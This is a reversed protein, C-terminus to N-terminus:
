ANVMAGRADLAKLKDRLWTAAKAADETALDSGDDPPPAGDVQTAPTAPPPPAPKSFPDDADRQALAELSFQQQQMMPSDGGEVPPLDLWRRRAENPAAVGSRVTESAASVRGATDMQLLDNRDFESGLRRGDILEPALGLGYDLVEEVNEIREQLCQSYYQLNIAESGGALNPPPGVNIKWPPVGFAQCVDEATWKLQDILQADVASLGINQYKLGSGLVAVKGANSGTFNNDWYEKARAATEVSIEGPASLVGGPNSGTGFFMASSEQIRLAEIAAVGCATIPSVGVLPHYLCMYTDHIIESAPVTIAVDLGALNDTNLAYFVSGDPGVLARTRQPDLVYMARVVGRADRELLVYSNGHVLVAITWSQFFKLRTQYHNPKRLVPTAIPSTTETWIGPPGEVVVRCRMKAVDSSILRICAFVPSYRLADTLTVEVNSQWAGTFSEVIRIWTSRDDVNQLTQVITAPVVAKRTLEVAYRTFPIRV